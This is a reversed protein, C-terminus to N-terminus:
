QHILGHHLILNNVPIGVMSGWSLVIAYPGSWVRSQSGIVLTSWASENTSFTSGTWTRKWVVSSPGVSYTFALHIYLRCPNRCPMLQILNRPRKSQKWFGGRPPLGLTCVGIVSLKLMEAYCIKTILSSNNKTHIFILNMFFSSKKLIIYTFNSNSCFFKNSLQNSGMVLMYSWGHGVVILTTILWLFIYNWWLHSVCPWKQTGSNRCSGRWSTM